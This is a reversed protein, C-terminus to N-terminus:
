RHNPKMSGVIWGAGADSLREYLGGQPDLRERVSRFKIMNEGYLAAMDQPDYILKAWHPRGGLAKWTRGLEAFFTDYGATGTFTLMEILCSGSSHGETPSLLATSAHGVFRAHLVMNVPFEERLACAEVQAVAANWAQRVKDYGPEIPIAWSTDVVPAFVTQYQMAWPVACVVDHKPMLSFMTRCISPTLRPDARLAARLPQALVGNEIAQVFDDWARQPLRETLAADTRNWTKVLADQNFPFWFLEFCENGTALTEIQNVAQIMPMALDVAHVNYMPVCEVTVSYVIGLAGLSVLLARWTDSGDHQYHTVEGARTSSM